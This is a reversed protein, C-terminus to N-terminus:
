LEKRSQAYCYFELQSFALVPRKSFAQKFSSVCCMNCKHIQWTAWLFVCCILSLVVLWFFCPSIPYALSSSSQVRSGRNHACVIFPLRLFSMVHRALLKAAFFM